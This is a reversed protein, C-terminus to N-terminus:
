ASHFGLSFFAVITVSLVRFVVKIELSIELGFGDM